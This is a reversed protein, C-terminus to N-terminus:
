KKAMQDDNAATFVAICGQADSGGANSCVTLGATSPIPVYTQNFTPEAAVSHTTGHPTNPLGTVINQDPGIREGNGGADIIGLRQPISGQDIALFYSNNSANFWVEDAGDENALTAIITVATQGTIVGADIIITSPVTKNPNSCGLLIQNRPGITMGVPDACESVPIDLVNDIQLTGAPQVSFVVVAGDNTDNGPGNVEPINLYFKRTRSDWQCQQIGDTAAPTGKTGDMPIRQLVSYNVTSVVSVFPFPSEGPNTVLVLQDSPDFCLNDARNVGGTNIVHTTQHSFLDIVKVVSTGDGAWVESQNVTVIGNPGPNNGPMAGAFPPTAALQVLVSNTTTDIVDIAQNTRDALLYLGLVPDVFSVDFSTITQGGPLSIQSRASYIEDPSAALASTLLAAVATAVGLARRLATGCYTTM